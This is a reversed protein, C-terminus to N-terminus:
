PHYKLAVRALIRLFPVSNGKPCCNIYEPIGSANLPFDVGYDRSKLRIMFCYEEHILITPTEEEKGTSRPDEAQM